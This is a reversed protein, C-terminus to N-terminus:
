KCDETIMQMNVERIDDRKVIGIIECDEINESKEKLLVLAKKYAEGFNEALVYEYRENSWYANFEIEYTRM